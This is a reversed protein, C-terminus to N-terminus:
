SNKWSKQFNSPIRKKWPNCLPRIVLSTSIRRIMAQKGCVACATDGSLQLLLEGYITRVAEYPAFNKLLELADYSLLHYQQRAEVTALLAM